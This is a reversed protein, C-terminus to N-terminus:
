LFYCRGRYANKTGPDAAVGETDTVGFTEIVTKVESGTTVVIETMAAAGLFFGTFLLAAPGFDLLSLFNREGAHVAIRAATALVGERSM